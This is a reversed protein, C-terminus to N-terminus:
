PDGSRARAARRELIVSPRLVEGANIIRDIQRTNRIDELPDARLLVLDALKGPEISGLHNEERLVEANVRTAAQLVSAPSMGSEVLLEMEKHLSYGPAVQPEPADTGVLIKAGAEHLMGVLDQYKRFTKRRTELPGASYNTLRTERDAAWFDRLPRPMKLNDPHNVIEDVDM